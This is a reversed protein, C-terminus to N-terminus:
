REHEDHMTASTKPSGSGRKNVPKVFKAYEMSHTYRRCIPSETKRSLHALCHHYLHSELSPEWLRTHENLEVSNAEYPEENLREEQERPWSIKSSNTNTCVLM